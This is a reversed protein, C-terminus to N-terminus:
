REEESEKVKEPEVKEVEEIKEEIPKELEVEIKEPPAIRAIIEGSDKLIKVGVALKLDKILIHDEFNKLLSINVRIEKPLNQPLAKVELDSINKVLTGGLEKVAPAEGEFVIPVKAEVEVTLPAQYLDVHIFKGSLPDLKVDHILVQPKNETKIEPSAIDLLILSSEGAQRYIEEFSKYDLELPISKKQPGYVVAPLIGKVRLSKTKRGLTKRVKSSLTLM